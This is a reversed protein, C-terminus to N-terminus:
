GMTSLFSTNIFLIYFALGNKIMHLLIGAWISGTVERLSCLIISLAFVDIGVNWQGHIFGFVMSVIIIAIWTPVIERLKGYLYGRFIVEEAVPAVVILMTFALIYEYHYYLNGFGTEQAQNMDIGPLFVSFVYVFLASLLFYIIFGAPALMIDMWTPLETLGIDRRSTYYKKIWMPVGIIVLASLAYVCSALVTSLVAQNMGTFSIGVYRLIDFIVSIIAWSVGFGAVVWFPLIAATWLQKKDFKQKSFNASM